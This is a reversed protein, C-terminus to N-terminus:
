KAIITPYQKKIDSEFLNMDWQAPVGTAVISYAMPVKVPFAIVYDSSCIQIPWSTKDMLRDFQESTNAYILFCKQNGNSSYRDYSLGIHFQKNM